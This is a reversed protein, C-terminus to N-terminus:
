VDNYIQFVDAHDIAFYRAEKHSAFTNSVVPSGSHCPERSSGVRIANAPKDNKRHWM